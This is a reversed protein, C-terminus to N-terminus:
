KKGWQIVTSAILIKPYQDFSYLFIFSFLRLYCVVHEFLVTTTRGDRAGSGSLSVTFAGRLLQGM